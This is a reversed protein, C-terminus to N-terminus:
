GADRVARNQVAAFAIAALVGVLAPLALARLSEALSFRDALIGTVSPGIGGLMWGVGIALASAIGAGRPWVEQAMVIGVPFSAGVTVGAAGLLAIQSIGTADPFAWVVFALLLMSIAVVQWRAIRDSLPGGLLSGLGVSASFGFLSRSGMAFTGGQTHIWEPLYTSFSTQVWSRAMVIAVVLALAIAAGQRFRPEAQTDPSTLTVDQPAKGRDLLLFVVVGALLGVPIVVSTGRLGAARLGAAVLLPSLAAGINGGVSFISVATGRRHTSGSGALAAGAPHFAASGLAGMGVIWILLRYNDAFGTFGMVLGTWMIGLVILRRPNWRDSLYGFIPQALTGGLAAVLAIFGVQTYSLDLTNILVPYIVPLYNNSVELSFHAISVLLLSRKANIPM